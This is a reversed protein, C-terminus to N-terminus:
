FLRVERFVHVVEEASIANAADGVLVGDRWLDGQAEAFGDGLDKGFCAAFADEYAAVGAEGAIHEFCGDDGTEGGAAHVDGEEADDGSGGDGAEGSVETGGGADHNTGRVIGKFVVAEFDELAVAVFAGGFGFFAEFVDDKLFAHVGGGDDAEADSAEGVEIVGCAEVLHHSLVGEGEGFAEVAHFDDDIAGVAGGAFDGRLDEALEAGFDDGDVGGGIAVVDVVVAAACVGFGEDLGGFFVLGVDAEGVVAIGVADEEAIFIAVEEIAVFDEGDESDVEELPIAEVVVGEDGGDHGVEAEIFGEGLESAADDADGDAIFVDDFFHEFAIVVEATFLGAVDNDAVKGGGAVAEDGGELDEADDFGCAFGEALEALGEDFVGLDLEVEVDAFFEGDFADRFDGISEFLGLTFEAGLAADEKAVRAGFGFDAEEDFGFVGVLDGRKRVADEL